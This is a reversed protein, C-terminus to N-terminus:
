LSLEKEAIPLIDTLNNTELIKNHWIRTNNADTGEPNICLTRCGSQSVWEDNNGNGVFLVDKVDTNTKTCYDQIYKAKGTFDNKNTNVALLLDNKGYIFHNATINDVLNANEQLAISIVSDVSGSLIQIYVGEDKLAQFTKGVNNILITEKASEEVMPKTLGRATFANCSLDCWKKYDFEGNVFRKYLSHQYSDKDTRYGLKKWLKLWINPTDKTLTGDFDFIVTKM